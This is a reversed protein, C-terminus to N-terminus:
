RVNYKHFSYKLKKLIDTSSFDIYVMVKGPEGRIIRNTTTTPGDAGRKLKSVSSVSECVGKTEIAPTVALKKLDDITNDFMYDEWCTNKTTNQELHLNLGTSSLRVRKDSLKNCEKSLRSRVNADREKEIMVTQLIQEENEFAPTKIEESSKINQVETKDEKPKELTEIIKKKDCYYAKTIVFKVKYNGRNLSYLHRRISFM